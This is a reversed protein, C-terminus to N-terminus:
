FFILLNIQTRIRAEEEASVAERGSCPRKPWLDPLDLDMYLEREAM